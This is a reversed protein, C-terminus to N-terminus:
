ILQRWLPFWKPTEGDAELPPLTIRQFGKECHVLVCEHDRLSRLLHPKIKHEEIESYNVTRKGASSGWSRKVVQKKGLFDAAQVADAEDASRFIIRNRLNLTLVKSKDNGLPPILSTTSQAAAVITAGAERIVDVCNYDSTGDESATMFRQAEDAWLILLNDDAREAKTKDFRRLAHNYFLLKLFTNVYRRETQFKQPMTVLIIKGDDIASYDFTNERTCFVEAVEPTLFYQLYNGITERVGGLQEEPQNIFRNTFHDHLEKRRPADFLDNLNRLEEMLLIKNSLLAFAGTLTVPQHLEFLLELAHAIHTQAQSKFFGKDGGQGLSTATDVVFKAYTSFPISRDGTLNFRHPPKWKLDSDDTRIQLHILNEARGYHHAMASLTEWYVGKEDVCLGGWNKENQFVQHALQNIGSSTKGSGTDGTILWGRCFQNRRWTLNGLKAIYKKPKHSAFLHRFALFLLLIGYGAMIAWVPKPLAPLKHWHLPIFNIKM